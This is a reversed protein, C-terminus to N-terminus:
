DLRAMLIARDPRKGPSIYYRAVPLGQRRFGGYELGKRSGANAVRGGRCREHVAETFSPRCVSQNGPASCPSTRVPNSQWNLRKPPKACSLRMLCSCGTRSRCSTATCPVSARVMPDSDHAMVIAEHLDDKWGKMGLCCRAIGRWAIAIALPSGFLLNGTARNGEALDVMRQAWRLVDAMEAAEHKAAICAVSVAITFTPDDISEVLGVLEDALNSAEGRHGDFLHGTVVAAMGIALSRQDGDGLM